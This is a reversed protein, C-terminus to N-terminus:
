YLFGFLWLPIKKGIGIEIGDIALYSGRINKIQSFNKNKGGIEFIYKNNILFDGQRPILIKHLMSLMNIFFTERINGVNERGKNCIAYVQNPNNLYIKEPKEMERLGSGGNKRLTIIVGGNELYHLYNKLTREDGIEVIKKLRKLDVTFPVSEAIVALLNKLKKISSGSLAPYISLLDGEITTHISQELTIYYLSVDNFEQFYPYYGFQLYDGFLALVKKGKQEVSEIIESALKEHNKIISELSHPQTESGLILDIFERFSLGAMNYVV